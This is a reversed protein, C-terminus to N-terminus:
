QEGIRRLIYAEVDGIEMDLAISLEGHLMDRARKM